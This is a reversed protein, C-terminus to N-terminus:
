FPLGGKGFQTPFFEAAYRAILFASFVVVLGIIAWRIRERAKELPEKRGQAFIYQFSAWVLWYFALFVAIYFAINLLGSLVAGLNANPGSFNKVGTDKLLDGLM